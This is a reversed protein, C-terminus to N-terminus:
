APVIKHVGSALSLVYLEGTADEGFSAALGGPVPLDLDRHEIVRGGDVRLAWLRATYTDTFLYTGALAPIARGRYVYGGVVSKGQDRGYEHVPPVAGAIRGGNGRSGEYAPWGLNSGEIHGAPLFDIEEVEGQGVDGIWLDGTERDFSFRWPNRLGWAVREYEPAATADVDFRVLDGLPDSLDQANGFTDNGGGGDGLGLWLKGDPGFVINGGNHNGAPQEYQFVVRRAGTDRDLVDVRTDGDRNTYSLYLRDGRPHCAIGLLGQEGGTSVEGRLDVATDEGPLTVVRGDKTAVFLRDDGSCTTLALAGRVGAVPELHLAPPWPVPSTGTTPASSVASPAATSPATTVPAGDDTAGSSCAGLLLVAAAALRRM